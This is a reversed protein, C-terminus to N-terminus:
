QLRKICQAIQEDAAGSLAIARVYAIRPCLVLTKSRVRVTAVCLTGSISTDVSRQLTQAREFATSAVKGHASCM